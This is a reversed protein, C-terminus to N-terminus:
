TFFLSCTSIKNANTPTFLLKGRCWCKFTFHYNNQEKRHRSSPKVKESAPITCGLSSRIHMKKYICDPSQVNVAFAKSILQMQAQDYYKCLKLPKQPKKGGLAGTKSATNELQDSFLWNSSTSSLASDM